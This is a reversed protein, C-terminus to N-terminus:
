NDVTITLVTYGWAVSVAEFPVAGKMQAMVDPASGVPKLRLGAPIREPVGVAKPVNLKVTVTVSEAVGGCVAVALRLTKILGAMAVTAMFGVDTVPPVDDVPVTVSFPAAAALAETVSELLLVAAVTGAVTVTAAPAVVAVKWAVVVPTVVEVGAVM